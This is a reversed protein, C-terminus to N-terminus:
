QPGLWVNNRTDSQTAPEYVLEKTEINVKYDCLRIIKPVEIYNSDQRPAIKSSCGRVINGQSDYYLRYM